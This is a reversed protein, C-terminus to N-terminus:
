SIIDEINIPEVEVKLEPINPNEFTHSSAKQLETSLAASSSLIESQMVAFKGYPGSIYTIANKIWNVVDQLNAPNAEVLPKLLEQEKLIASYQAKLFAVVSNRISNLKNSLNGQLEVSKENIEEQSLGEFSAATKDLYNNVGQIQLTLNDIYTTNIEAM